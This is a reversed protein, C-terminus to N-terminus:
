GEVNLNSVDIKHAFKEVKTKIYRLNHKNLKGFLPVRERVVVGYAELQTVKDPNNTLLKIETAGLAKLMQAAIAYDREDPKFGLQVNADYTDIGKDQLEYAAVKWALGIGRGEQRLYLLIGGSAYIMELARELQSGCDCRLSSLCDGTVCESHIRVLPVGWYKKVLAFHEKFDLENEFSVIEFTGFKTPFFARAKVTVLQVRRVYEWWVEPITLVTLGFRKGIDYAYELNHSDGKEDLIEVIVSYPSFGAMRVLEVSSESHGKRKSFSSAGILIVHGPYKYDKLITNRDALKNCTVARESAPIGTALKTSPFDVPVFYNAGYNSPLKFFGREMLESEPGVVCFLGKGYKTVFEVIEPTILEAPYVFDAEVEREPDILIVPKGQLFQERVIEM